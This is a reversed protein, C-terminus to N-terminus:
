VTETQQKNCNKTVTLQLTEAHYLGKNEYESQLVHFFIIRLQCPNTNAQM